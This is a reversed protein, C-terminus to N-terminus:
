AAEGGLFQDYYRRSFFGGPVIARYAKRRVPRIPGFHDAGWQAAQESTIAYDFAVFSPIRGRFGFNDTQSSFGLTRDQDLNDIEGVGSASQSTILEGDRYFTVTSGDYTNIVLRSKDLYESVDTDDLLHTTGGIDARHRLRPGAPQFVLQLQDPGENFRYPFQDTAQSDQELIIAITYGTLGIVWDVDELPFEWGQETTGGDFKPSVGTLGLNDWTPEGAADGSVELSRGTIHNLPEGAGAWNPYLNRARRNHFWDWEKGVRDPDIIWPAPKVGQSLIQISM